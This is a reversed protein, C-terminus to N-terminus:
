KGGYLIKVLGSDELEKVFRNDILEGVKMKKAESLWVIVDIQFPLAGV